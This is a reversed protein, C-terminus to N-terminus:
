STEMDNQEGDENEDEEEEMGDGGRQLSVTQELLKTTEESIDNDSIDLYSLESAAIHPLLARVGSDTIKTHDVHLETIKSDKLMDGLILLGSDDVGTHDLYLVDVSSRPLAKLIASAGAASIPNSGLVLVMVVSDNLVKAIQKAGADEICNDGLDLQTIGTDPLSECLASVDTVENGDLYFRDLSERGALNSILPSLTKDDLENDGFDIWTAKKPVAEFLEVWAKSDVGANKSLGFATLLPGSGGSLAKALKQVDETSLGCSAFSLGRLRRESGALLDCVFDLCQRRDKSCCLGSFELRTEKDNLAQQAAELGNCAVFGSEQDSAMRLLQEEEADEASTGASQSKGATNSHLVELNEPKLSKQEGSELCVVWRGASGDWEKCTGSLGNLHAAAKLGSLRVTAGRSIEVQLNEAADRQPAM